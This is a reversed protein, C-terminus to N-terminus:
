HELYCFSSTDNKSIELVGVMASKLINVHNGAYPTQFTTLLNFVHTCDEKFKFLLPVFGRLYFYARPIKNHLFTMPSFSCSFDALSVIETLILLYPYAFM